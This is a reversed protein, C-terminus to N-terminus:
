YLGVDVTMEHLQCWCMLTTWWQELYCVLGGDSRKM